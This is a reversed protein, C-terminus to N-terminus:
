PSLTWTQGSLGREQAKVLWKEESPVECLLPRGARRRLEPGCGRACLEHKQDM